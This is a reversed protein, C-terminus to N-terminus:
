DNPKVSPASALIEGLTFKHQLDRRMEVLKEALMASTKPDLCNAYTTEVNWSWAFWPPNTGCRGLHRQSEELIDPARLGQAEPNGIRLYGTFFNSGEDCAGFCVAVVEDVLICVSQEGVFREDYPSTLGQSTKVENKTSYLHSEIGQETLLTQIALLLKGRVVCELSRKLAAASQLLRDVDKWSPLQKQKEANELHQLLEFDMQDQKQKNVLYKILDQYHSLTQRIGHCLEIAPMRQSDLDLVRHIWPLITDEFSITCYQVGLALVEKLDSAEPKQILTLPLYFVFIQHPEFGRKVVSKVYRQLQQSQNVAGNIKNEIIFAYREHPGEHTILLDIYDSELAIQCGEVDFRRRLLKGSGQLVTILDGLLLSGCGHDEAPDLLYGLLRSHSTERPNIWFNEFPWDAISRQVRTRLVINWADTLSSMFSPFNLNRFSLLANVSSIPLLARARNLGILLSQEYAVLIDISIALDTSM